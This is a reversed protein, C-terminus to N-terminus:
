NYVLRGSTFYIFLLSNNQATYFSVFFTFFQCGTDHRVTTGDPNTNAIFTFSSPHFSSLSINTNPPCLYLYLIRMIRLALVSLCDEILNINANSIMKPNPM